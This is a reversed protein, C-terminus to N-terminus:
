VGPLEKLFRDLEDRPIGVVHEPGPYNKAHVDAVFESFAAVREQQLRDYEATFNRYVKAHRPYHGRNSGLVDQAFLYQADCGTGAGMSIMFMPTRESIAAAVDVPVVEIEAAFAGAEELAKTQRWIELASQATKGVAKFGGTWTARSPILGVHGCVPIGEDRMRRVTAVSAACYVADGGARLAKFAARLYDEATIYEGYDLGPFTFASPAADRFEPTLLSPPVSLLDVRAREAAEAEELTEVRLMTLQRRGKLALIDAVTPRRSTM